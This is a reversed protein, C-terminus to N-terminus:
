KNRVAKRAPKRAKRTESIIRYTYSVSLGFKGAISSVSKGERYMKVISKDRQPNNEVVSAVGFKMRLQHVAQRTIGFEAGIAADRKLKRQLRILESKTIRAM